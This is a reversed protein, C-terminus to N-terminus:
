HQQAMTEPCDFVFARSPQDALDADHIRLAVDIRRKAVVTLEAPRQQRLRMALTIRALRQLRSQVPLLAMQATVADDGKDIRVVCRRDPQRVLKAKALPRPRCIAADGRDLELQPPASAPHRSGRARDPCSM